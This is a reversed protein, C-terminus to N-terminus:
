FNYKNPIPWHMYRAAPVDGALWKSKAGMLWLVQVCSLMNAKDVSFVWHQPDM